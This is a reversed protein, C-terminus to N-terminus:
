RKKGLDVQGAVAVAWRLRGTRAIEMMRFLRASLRRRQEEAVAIRDGTGAQVLHDGRVLLLPRPDETPPKPRQGMAGPLRCHGRDHPAPDAGAKLRCQTGTAFRGHRNLLASLGTGENARCARGGPPTM